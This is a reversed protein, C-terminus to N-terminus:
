DRQRAEAIKKSHHATIQSHVPETSLHSLGHPPGNQTHDKSNLLFATNIEQVLRFGNLSSSHKALARKFDTTKLRSNALLLQFFLAIALLKFQM